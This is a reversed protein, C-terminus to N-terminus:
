AIALFLYTGGTVNLAAPASSTVTFGSSLPDIYDTNTVQSVDNNLLFYPDNGSVIGRTTDWVYWGSSNTGTVEADKRKILVFRAGATFGCDVDVNNGTNGSFTGVKSIGALSAFLYAVHKDGDRNTNVGYGLGFQTATFTSNAQWYTDGGSLEQATDDLRMRYQETMYISWVFFSKAYDRNKVIVLEPAVELNHNVVQQTGASNTGTGEYTVVDMFGPARKFMYSYFTSAYAKGWGVNSDWTLDSDNAEVLSENSKLYKTGLLRAGMGRHYTYDPKAWMAFDVPFGSDWCPITSSSNGTDIAFVNIAAEPPKNPRRIAMYIYTGNAFDGASATSLAFGTATPSVISYAVTDEANSRNPFLKSSKNVDMGRMVDFMFWHESVSSNKILVFQPEFGLNVETVQSGNNAVSGCKIISEDEDTGFSANDHAFLYAVYTEGSTNVRSETGVTFVSSTPATNNWDGSSTWAADPNNLSIVKTAGLSRHYVAWSENGQTIEKIIIMGPVSGLSHPISQPNNNPDGNYTVVDFFGPAKRFTWSVYNYSSNNYASGSGTLTFGNNNISAFPNYAYQEGSSSTSIRQGWASRETDHIPNLGSDYDRSKFWVMGGEGALDIGNNIPNSGSTGSYVYTSFVDDVYTKASIGGGALGLGGGGFGGFSTFPKEKKNLDFM